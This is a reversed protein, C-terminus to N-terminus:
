RCLTSHNCRYRASLTSHARGAQRRALAARQSDFHKLLSKRDDMKELTLGAALNLNRVQFNAGSPDGTVFPDHQKGLFGAEQGHPLNGGTPGMKEPLVVHPPLAL